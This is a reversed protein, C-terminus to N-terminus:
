GAGTSQYWALTEQLGETLDTSPEFGLQDQAKQINSLSHMVDGPRAEAYEPNAKCNSLQAVLHWLTNVEISKGTGVNFVQGAAHPQSMARLNAQVVDQVFVFDRTQRGDGYIIPAKGNVARSLFISIVGSYPSSPDQRPGYVNFYRLCVTELSYLRHYLLAYYENTLKQIAYPSQPRPTMTETKPLQPDDGYIASSSALVMRQIGNQRAAELVNATGVDNIAISDLPQKVSQVVSVMAAHHFVVQCHEIAEAVTNEDRIDGKIFTIRDKVPDLNHLRGTSLNDLVTVHCGQSVLARTLHSGIFGAGGTVLARKFDLTMIDEGKVSWLQQRYGIEFYDKPGMETNCGQKLEESYLLIGAPQFEARTAAGRAM